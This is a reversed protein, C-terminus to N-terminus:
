DLVINDPKLDRFIVDRKHLDELALITEALYVRVREETFCKERQLYSGLDGGCCYDLILFLKDPTQFAYNLKVIFPHNSISLVNRETLAYKTLNNGLIQFIWNNRMIKSKHLVKMAYLIKTEKKEVLYVEGFSGKGILGHVIFCDPGIIESQPQKPISRKSILM